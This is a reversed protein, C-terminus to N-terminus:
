MSKNMKLLLASNIIVAVSGANHVLAGLVPNLVGTMALIIAAFNLGMSLIINFNITNMTRKALMLLHPLSEVNDSVLAIDAAEVAIDSGIGGMAIGVFATKLAPADNIGDGVMCVPEKKNQYVKIAEMKNEPLCDSHVETIGLLAAMHSAAQKNDGTILVSKIGLKSIRGIAQSATERLTDSLVVLGATKGAIAVYIATCGENAYKDAMREIDSEIEIGNRELLDKKGALVEQGSIVAKVGNGVELRFEEPEQLAINMAKCHSVVAKGLPHESRLEVSGAILLLQENTIDKNCSEVAIVTPKGYTLTGTKDFAVRTVKALRELADGERVLIGYKTANGIGAMIATPTALVLACPCFVVLITVSRIIEGTVFWTGAAAALAIAVIWTAWRDAIGVIKAKGADASEVLRIMRQLSSDEGVRTAKMDFTGFQNVTGGSVEDGAEKDVPLSEGTMVAQNVSSRGSIIVGDAAITEGALVRLIDGVAVQEAPIMTETGDKVLRATRPTLSVLKEIGERAKRVTREELLSGVKMIFAVEAAAFYEGTVVSAILALAVLVDAKVDFEYVLGNFAGIIIPIGCLIIAIWAIDFPFGGPMLRFLSVAIAIGSIVTYILTRHEEDFLWKKINKM